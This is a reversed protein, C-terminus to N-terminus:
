DSFGWAYASGDEAGGLLTQGTDSWRLSTIESATNTKLRVIRDDQFRALYVNGGLTGAAVLDLLPHCAVRTTIEESNPALVTAPKGMPGKGGCDWCVIGPSGASALWRNDHSWGFSKPKIAYGTMQFDAFDPVRWGHLTNEQMSTLLYKGNPCWAISLHSGKWNVRQAVQGAEGNVWWLSIGGYTTAAIRKGKPDFCIGQVTSPHNSFEARMKGQEDFVLITKKYSVAILGADKHVALQEFWAKEVKIIEHATGDHAIRMIRGDDGATIFAKGSPALAIATLGGKHAKITPALQTEPKGLLRLNVDGDALGVAMCGPSEAGIVDVVFANEQWAAGAYPKDQIMADSM